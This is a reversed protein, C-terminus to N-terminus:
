GSPAHWVVGGSRAIASIAGSLDNVQTVRLLDVAADKRALWVRFSWGNRICREFLVVIPLDGTPRGENAAENADM